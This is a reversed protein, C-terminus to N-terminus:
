NDDEFVDLTSSTCPWCLNLILRWVHVVTFLVASCMYHFSATACLWLVYLVISYRCIWKKIKWEMNQSSLRLMKCVLLIYKNKKDNFSMIWM